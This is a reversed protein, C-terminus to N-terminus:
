QGFSYMKLSRIQMSPVMKRQQISILIQSFIGPVQLGKFTQLIRHLDTKHLAHKKSYCNKIDHVWTLGGM